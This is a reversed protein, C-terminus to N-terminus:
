LLAEMEDLLEGFYALASNVPEPSSMTLYMRSLRSTLRAFM